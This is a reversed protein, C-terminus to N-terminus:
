NSRFPKAAFVEALVFACTKLSLPGEMFLTVLVHKLVRGNKQAFLQKEKLNMSLVNM